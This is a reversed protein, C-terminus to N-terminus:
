GRRGAHQAIREDEKEGEGLWRYTAYAISLASALAAAAIVTWGSGYGSRAAVAAFLPPGCVGGLYVGGQTLGTSAAIRGPRVRSVGLNFLGNWGWGFAYALVVGLAFAWPAGSWGILLYGGSGILLMAGVTGTIGPGRATGGRWSVLVRMAICALSGAIQAAAIATASVERDEGTVAVFSPLATAAASGLVAGVVLAAMLPAGGTLRPAPTGAAPRAPAPPAPGVRGILLQSGLTLAAVAWLAPRWAASEGVLALLIGSLLTSVPIASQVLGFSLGRLRPDAVGALVQNSAPQVLSNPIGLLLLAVMIAGASGALAIATLGLTSGAAALRLATAPGTAAVLRGAFPSLTASVLYFGAVALGVDAPTFDITRGIQVSISGVLFPAVSASVMTTLVASVAGPGSAAAKAHETQM